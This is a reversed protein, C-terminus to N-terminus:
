LEAPTIFRAKSYGEHRTRVLTAEPVGNLLIQPNVHFTFVGCISIQKNTQKKGPSLQM